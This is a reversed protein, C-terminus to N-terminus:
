KMIDQIRDLIVDAAQMKSMLPYRTIKGERDIISIINTDVEFGAGEKTVDNAVIMDLNKKIIKKRANDDLDETEAAFGILIKNGKIQGLKELIDPNRVLRLNIIEDDKKIKQDAVFEPRYDAVAAAMIVADAWEFNDIIRQLMEDCTKINMTEVGSIANLSTPGSILLVDAGRMHAREALAYGMKGSSRNTIYRVPDIPEQTPGATVILHMGSLDKTQVVTLTEIIGNLIDDVDALKGKGYVGCALVGTAPEIFRYGFSKLKNINEQTIKNEFMNVNMAPAIIVPAKTAMVTTTLLDDAIGNAIKGIVNATAPAIVFVDARSALSIHEIEWSKVEDFMGTAVYNSSLTQLTIPNILRTSNETMIVNVNAGLKKLRSVLDAAKYAAISGTIGLVVNKGNLINM